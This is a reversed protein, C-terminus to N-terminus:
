CHTFIEKEGCGKWYIHNTTKKHYGNQCTHPSIVNPKANGQENVINLMKEDAQQGDANGRQFFTQETRRVMKENIKKTHTNLQLLQKYINSILGKDTM